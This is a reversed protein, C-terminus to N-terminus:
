SFRVLRRFFGLLQKWRNVHMTVSYCFSGECYAQLSTAELLVDRFHAILDPCGCLVYVFDCERSEMYPSFGLASIRVLHCTACVQWYAINCRRITGNNERLAWVFLWQPAIVNFIVALWFDMWVVARLTMSSEPNLPGFQGLTLM